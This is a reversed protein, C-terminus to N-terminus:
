LALFDELAAKLGAPTAISLFQPPFQYFRIQTKRERAMKIWELILALGASDCSSVQSFDCNWPTGIPFHTKSEELLSAATAFTLDGKIYIRDQNVLIQPDPM